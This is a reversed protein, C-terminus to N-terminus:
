EAGGEAKARVSAPVPLSGLPRIGDYEPVEFWTVAAHTATLSRYRRVDNFEDELREVIRWEGSAFLFCREGIAPRWPMAGEATWGTQAARIQAHADKSLHGPCDPGCPELRTGTLLAVAALMESRLEREEPDCEGLLIRAIRAPISWDGFKETEM